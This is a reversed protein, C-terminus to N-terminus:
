IREPYPIFNPDKLPFLPIKKLARAYVSIWLGGIGIAAAIDSLHISVSAPYFAPVVLWFIDVLSMFMVALAVVSLVAKNRKAARALLLLFPAFFHFLILAVALWQWGNQTRRFYWPIEDSLDGSWIILFQSFSVYAWLMVFTLMLNGLDHFHDATVSGNQRHAIVALIPIVFAFASLVQATMFLMGYITSFWHADLSMAWDVAAFTITLGYLVLGPGSLLQFRRLLGNDGTRDQELSWRNLFYALLNWILFYVAARIIFFPV